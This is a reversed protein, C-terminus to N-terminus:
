SASRVDITRVGALEGAMARDLSVGAVDPAGLGTRHISRLRSIEPPRPETRAKGMEPEGPPEVERSPESAVLGSLCLTQHVGRDHDLHARLAGGGRIELAGELPHISRPLARWPVE